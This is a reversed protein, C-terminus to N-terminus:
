WNVLPRGPVSRAPWRTQTKGLRFRSSWQVASQGKGSPKLSCNRSGIEGEITETQMGIRGVSVVVHAVTIGGEEERM